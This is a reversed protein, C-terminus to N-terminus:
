RIKHLGDLLKDHIGGFGGNSFVAIVDDRQVHFLVERVIGAVSDVTKAAVGLANLDQVVLPVDLLDEQSIKGNDYAPALIVQDAGQLAPALDNQFVKRRSTNSRPEFLVWLRKGPYQLRLAQITERIATPHHAFDDIVTVGNVIGRVEQRRKIGKFTSLGNQVQEYEVGLYQMVAWVGLFNLANHQGPLSSM